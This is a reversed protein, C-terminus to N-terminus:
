PRETSRTWKDLATGDEMVTDERPSVGLTRRHSYIHLERIEMNFEIQM